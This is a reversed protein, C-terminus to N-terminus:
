NPFVRMSRVVATRNTSVDPLELYQSFLSPFIIFVQRFVFSPLSPSVPTFALSPFTTFITYFCAGQLGVCVSNSRHYIRIKDFRRHCCLAGGLERRVIVGTRGFNPVASHISICLLINRRSKNPKRRRRQRM